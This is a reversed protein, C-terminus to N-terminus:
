VNKRKKLLKTPSFSCDTEKMTWLKTLKKKRLIIRLGPRRPTKESDANSLSRGTLQWLNHEFGTDTPSEGEASPVPQWQPTYNGDAGPKVKQWSDKYGRQTSVCESDPLSSDFSEMAPLSRALTGTKRNTAQVVGFRINLSASPDERTM